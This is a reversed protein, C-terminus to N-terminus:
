GAAGARLVRVVYEHEAFMSVVLVPRRPQSQKLEALVELGSRGPLNVDLIVVDWAERAALSLAEAANGTEGFTAGAFRESLLNRIGRRVIEHDDVILVKM